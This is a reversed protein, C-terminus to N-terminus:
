KIIHKTTNGNAVVMYVGPTLAVAGSVEGNVITQGATNYVQVHTTGHVYIGDQTMEIMYQGNVNDIGTPAQHKNVLEFRTSNTGAAANFEYDGMEFDHVINLLHDVLYMETDMRNAAITYQGAAPLKVGLKVVGNAMPRENIACAANTQDITYLQPVQETSFFKAADAGLDYNLTADANIVVRTNDTNKGDTLSLNIIAREEAAAMRNEAPMAYMSARQEEIQTKTVAKSPDFHINGERDEKNQLFFAEYPSIYYDDDGPRLSHYTNSNVDWFTIPGSYELDEIHYYAMLPNSLYNWNLNSPTASPHVALTLDQLFECIVPAAIQLSFTVEEESDFQFIYGKGPYLVSQKNPVQKWGTTDREARMAGDYEYVVFEVDTLIDAVKIQFPFGLFHWKRGEVTVNIFLTDASMNCGAILSAWDGIQSSIIINGLNQETESDEVVLGSGPKLDVDPTGLIADDERGIVVDGTAYFDEYQFTKDLRDRHLIQSWQTDYLYKMEVADVNPIHLWANANAYASFTNQGITFPDFLYSTIDKVNCDKFAYDGISTVRGPVDVNELNTCDAFAHHGIHVLKSPFQVNKLNTCGVFANAAISELTKPMAVFQLGSCYGFSLTSMEQLNPPLILTDLACRRFAADGITTIKKGQINLTTLNENGEFARSPITTLKSNEPITVEKLWYSGYIHYDRQNWEEYWVQEYNGTNPNWDGLQWYAHYDSAQIGISMSNGTKYAASASPYYGYRWIYDGSPASGDRDWYDHDRGAFAGVGLHSVNAPITVSALGAGRFAFMEIRELSAPLAISRLAYCNKFAEAGITKVGPITAEALSSCNYFTHHEIATISPDLVVKRLGTCNVFASDAITGHHITLEQVQDNITNAHIEKLSKPLTLKRIKTGTGTFAYSTLISDQSCYGETYEYPNAVITADTLDLIRLNPMQNRLMMIDYSNITGNVKLDVVSNVVNIDGLAVHIASKKNLATVNVEREADQVAIINNAYNSWASKYANVDSVLFWQDSNVVETGISAPTPNQCTILCYTLNAFAKNGIHQVSSPITIKTLDNCSCFAYEPITDVTAPITLETLKTGNILLNVLYTSNSHTQLLENTESNCYDEISNAAINFDLRYDGAMPGMIGSMEFASGGISMISTPLTISALNTCSAFARTGIYKVGESITVSNLSSCGYFAYQGITTVTSPIVLDTIKQGNIFLNNSQCIPNSNENAFYIGCWGAIDGAYHAELLNGCGVFANNAISKVTNPINISSLSGCNWFADVGISTVGEPINIEALKGCGLFAHSDIIKVSDPINVSTLNSCGEFLQESISTLGDPLTISSLASCQYFANYEITTVSNPISVSTLATCSNFAGSKIQTVSEPITVSTITKAMHFAGDGIRTVPIEKDEYTISAPIVVSTLDDYNEQSEYHEYTVVAFTDCGLYYGNEDYRDQSTIDYWLDGVQVRALGGDAYMVNAAILAFLFLFLKKM